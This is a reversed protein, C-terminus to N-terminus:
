EEFIIKNAGLEKIKALSEVHIGLERLRRGGDQFSKEIIFGMGYLEAGSQKIIDYVGVAANGNALFD